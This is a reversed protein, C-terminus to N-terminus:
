NRRFALPIQVTQHSVGLGQPLPPFPAARTVADLAAQDLAANGSSATIRLSSLAGSASVNFRVMVDGTAGKASRPYRQANALARRVQREWPAIDASGGGGTGGQQGASTKGAATDANNSGGNGASRAAVAQPKPQQRPRQTPESPREFSLTHPVPAANLDATSVPELTASVPMLAPTVPESAMASSVLPVVDLTEILASATALVTAAPVPTVPPLPETAQPQPAPQEPQNPQLSQTPIPEIAASQVAQTGSSVLNKSATSEITANQNTSVTAMTVIDITVAGPAPADDPQPWTFGILAVGFIGVHVLASGSLAYRM